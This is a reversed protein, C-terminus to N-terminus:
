FRTWQDSRERLVAVLQDICMILHNQPLGASSFTKIVVILWQNYAILYIQFAILVPLPSTPSLASQLMPVM